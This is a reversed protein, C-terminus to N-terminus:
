LILDEFSSLFIWILDVELSISKLLFLIGKSSFSNFYSLFLKFSILWFFKWISFNFLSFLFKFFSFSFKFICILFVISSNFLFSIIFLSFKSIILMLSSFKFILFFISSISFSLFSIFSLISFIFFSLLLKYSSFWLNFNFLSSIFLDFSKFLFIFWNFCFKIWFSFSIISDFFNNFSNFFLYSLIFSSLSFKCFCLFEKISSPKFKFAIIAFSFLSEFLKFTINFSFFSNSFLYLSIFFSNSFLFFSKLSNSFLYM